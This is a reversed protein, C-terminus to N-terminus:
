TQRTSELRTWSAIVVRSIIFPEYSQSTTVDLKHGCRLVTVFCHEHVCVLKEYRSSETHHICSVIFKSSTAHRSRAVSPANARNASLQCMASMIVIAGADVLANMQRTTLSNDRWRFTKNAFQNLYPQVVIMHYNEIVCTWRWHFRWLCNKQSV